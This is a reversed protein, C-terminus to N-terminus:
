ASSTFYALGSGTRQPLPESEGNSNRQQKPRCFATETVPFDPVSARFDRFFRCSTTKAIEGSGLPTTPTAGRTVALRLSIPRFRAPLGDVDEWCLDLLKMAEVPTLPGRQWRHWTQM